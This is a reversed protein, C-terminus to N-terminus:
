RKMRALRGAGWQEDWVLLLVSVIVLGAGAYGFVTFREDWWLYAMVGALVPELTAVVAARSAELNKLGHYYLSYAGYTSFLALFLLAGFATKSPIDLGIFPLLGLAGMPLAYLFLTPTAYRELVRKGFIYYMAYTFGAVLGSAIGLPSLVIDANGSGGFAVGTVGAMTLAVCAVKVPTMTEALFMRSLLAVWAPATYLLVAAIAAGGNSVALQYAGYFITVGWVGFFLVAPLDKRKVAFNRGWFAHLAFFVWGLVARWFAVELPAMGESFALKSVPGIGGWCLAALLVLLYGRFHM